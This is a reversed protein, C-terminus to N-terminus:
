FMLYGSETNYHLEFSVLVKRAGCTSGVLFLIWANYTNTFITEFLTAYRLLQCENMFAHKPKSCSLFTHGLVLWVFVQKALM